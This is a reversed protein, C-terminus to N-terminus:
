TPTPTGCACMGFALRGEDSSRPPQDVSMMPSDGHEEDDDDDDDDGGGSDDGSDSQEAAIFQQSWLAGCKRRERRMPKSCSGGSEGSSLRQLRAQMALAAWPHRM